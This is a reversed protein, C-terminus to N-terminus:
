DLLKDKGLISQVFGQWDESVSNLTLRVLEISQAVEGVASRQDRVEQIRTLFPDIGEGKQMQILRLREELYIKQQMSTGQYLTVLADWMQKSTDKDAIHSVVHDWVGDLILQKV